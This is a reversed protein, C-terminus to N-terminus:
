VWGRRERERGKEQMGRGGRGDDVEGRGEEEEQGCACVECVSIDDDTIYINEPKLDRHVINLSHLHALTEAINICWRCAM